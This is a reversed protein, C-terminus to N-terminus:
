RTGTWEVTFDRVNERSLVELSKRIYWSLDPDEKINPNICRATAEKPTVFPHDDCGELVYGEWNPIIVSYEGCTSSIDYVEESGIFAKNGYRDIIFVADAWFEVTYTDQTGDDFTVRITFPQEYDYVAEDFPDNHVPTPIDDHQVISISTSTTRLNLKGATISNDTYSSQMGPVTLHTNSHIRPLM